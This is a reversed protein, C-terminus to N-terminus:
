GRAARWGAARADSESCFMREGKSPSITTKDYSRGGPVHYIKEGEANINGKIACVGSPSPTAVVPAPTSTACGAGWLGRGATRAAAQAARYARQGAYATDYTYERGFGGAILVQAVSRGDALHVHRLLRGYRDRDAQSPDATLRVSRSQVLSQMASAAQRAYCQGGALEPTDIGIVRVRETRGAVRVKLTDDDVVGTVQATGASGGPAAGAAEVRAPAATTRPTVITSTAGGVSRSVTPLTPATAAPPASLAASAGAVALWMPQVAVTAALLLGLAAGWVHLM